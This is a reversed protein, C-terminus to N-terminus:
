YRNYKSKRPKTYGANRASRRNASVASIIGLIGFVTGFFGFWYPLSRKSFINAFFFSLYFDMDSDFSREIVERSSLVATEFILNEGSFFSVTGVAAGNEIPARLFIEDNETEVYLLADFFIKHTLASFEAHSLLATHDEGLIIELSNEDGLRPNEIQVSIIPANEKAIERFAFNFFGYDILRRADQWRAADTGNMVVCILELGDNKAAGAFVHGAAASFGAKAGVVYPHGHTGHPLMQNTNTWSFDDNEFIQKAVIEALAANEMFAKTIIAVDSATTFHNEFHQGFPNNFQTNRAGLAHAKENLLASFIKEAQDYPINYRNETARAVNQALIRGTENSSRILFSHLLVDVSIKEGERHINAGSGAPMNRIEQGVTIEDGFNLNEAVVLASLLKTLAAPYRRERENKAFLVRGTTQEILIASSSDIKLDSVSAHSANAHSANPSFIFIFILVFFIKKIM